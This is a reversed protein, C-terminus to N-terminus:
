QNLYVYIFMLLTSLVMIFLLCYMKFTRPMQIFNFFVLVNNSVIVGLILLVLEEFDTVNVM